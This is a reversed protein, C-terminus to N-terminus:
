VELYTILGAYDVKSVESTSVTCRFLKGEGEEIGAAVLANRLEEEKAELEAIQAKVLGLQDIITSLKTPTKKITPM